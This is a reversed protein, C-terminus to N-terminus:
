GPKRIDIRTGANDSLVPASDTDLLTNVVANGNARNKSFSLMRRAIDLIANSTVCM